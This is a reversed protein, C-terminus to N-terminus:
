VNDQEGPNLLRSFFCDTGKGLTLPIVELTPGYSRM